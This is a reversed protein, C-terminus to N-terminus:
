GWGSYSWTGRLSRCSLQVSKLGESGTDRGEMEDSAIVTLDLLLGEETITNQFDTVDPVPLEVAQKSSSCAVFLTIALLILSRSTRSMKRRYIQPSLKM